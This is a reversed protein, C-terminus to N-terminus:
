KKKIFIINQYFHLSEVPYAAQFGPIHKFNVDNILRRGLNVPHPFSFDNYDQTGKSWGDFFCGEVDEIV